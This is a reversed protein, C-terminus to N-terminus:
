KEPKIRKTARYNLFEFLTDCRSCRGQVKDNAHAAYWAGFPNEKGCPCIWSYGTQSTGAIGTLSKTSM